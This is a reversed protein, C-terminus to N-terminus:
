SLLEGSKGKRGETLGGPVRKDGWDPPSSCRRPGQVDNGQAARLRVRPSQENQGCGGHNQRVASEEADGAVKHHRLRHRIGRESKSWARFKHEAVEIESVLQKTLAQSDEDVAALVDIGRVLNSWDIKPVPLDDFVRTM